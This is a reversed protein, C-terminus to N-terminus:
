VATCYIHFLCWLGCRSSDDDYLQLLMPNIAPGKCHITSNKVRYVEYLPSHGSAWLDSFYFNEFSPWARYYFNAKAWLHNMKQGEKTRHTLDVNPSFLLANWFSHVKCHSSCDYRIRDGPMEDVNCLMWLFAEWCEGGGWKYVFMEQRVKGSM